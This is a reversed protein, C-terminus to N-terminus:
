ASVRGAARHHPDEQLHGITIDLFLFGNASTRPVLRYQVWVQRLETEIVETFLEQFEEVTDCGYQQVNDQTITGTRQGDTWASYLAASPPNIQLFRMLFMLTRADLNPVINVAAARTESQLLDLVYVIDSIETSGFTDGHRRLAHLSSSIRCVGAHAERLAIPPKM